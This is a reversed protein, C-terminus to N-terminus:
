KSYYVNGDKDIAYGVYGAGIDDIAALHNVDKRNMVARNVSHVSAPTGEVGFAIGREVANDFGIFEAVVTTENDKTITGLIIKRVTDALPVYDTYVAKLECAEWACFSYERDFSVIEGNKTWYNFLETNNRRLPATVTVKDGYSADEKGDEIVMIVDDEVSIGITNDAEEYSAVFLADGTISVATNAAYVTDDGAVTWGDAKGFGPLSVKELSLTTTKGDTIDSTGLIDGNANYFTAKAPASATTDRYVAFFINNGPTADFTHSTTKSVIKRSDGIGKTWYLFEYKNNEGAFQPATVSTATEEIDAGIYNNETDVSSASVDATATTKDSEAEANDPNVNVYEEGPDTNYESPIEDLTIKTLNFAQTYRVVEFCKNNKEYTGTPTTFLVYYNGASPANVTFTEAPNDTNGNHVTSSDHWGLKQNVSADAYAKTIDTISMTTGTAKGFNVETHAGEAHAVNNYISLKYKGAKSVNVVFAVHTCNGVTYSEKGYYGNRHKTEGTSADVYTLNDDFYRDRFLLMKIGNSNIESYIKNSNKELMNYVFRTNAVSWLNTKEANVTPTEGFATLSNFKTNADDHNSQVDANFTAAYEPDLVNTTFDYTYSAVKPAFNLSIPLFYYHNQKEEKAEENEDNPVMIFYYNTNDKLTVSRMQLPATAQVQSDVIGIRNKIDLNKVFDSLTSNTVPVEPKPVLYLEVIPGRNTVAEYALSPIFEGGKAVKLELCLATATGEMDPSFTISNEAKKEPKYFSVRMKENETSVGAVGHPFIQAVYGWPDSVSAVTTEITHLIERGSKEFPCTNSVLNETKTTETHAANTFVFNYGTSSGAEIEAAFTAPVLWLIMALALIVSLVKKM